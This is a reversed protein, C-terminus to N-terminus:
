GGGFKDIVQPDVGRGDATLEKQEARAPLEGVGVSATDPVALESVVVPAPISRGRRRGRGTTRGLGCRLQLCQSQQPKRVSNGPHETQFYWVTSCGIPSQELHPRSSM